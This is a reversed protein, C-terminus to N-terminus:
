RSEVFAIMAYLAAIGLLVYGIMRIRHTRSDAKAKPGANKFFIQPRAVMLLGAVFPILADFLSM